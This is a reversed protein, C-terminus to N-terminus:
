QMIIARTTNGTASTVQLQYMGASLVQLNYSITNNGTQLTAKREDVLQGLLSIVKLTVMEQRYAEISLSFSGNGPNPYVKVVPQGTVTAIGTTLTTASDINSIGSLGATYAEVYYWYASGAMLGTDSYAIANAGVTDKRIWSGTGTPSGWIIFGTENNSNDTWIM